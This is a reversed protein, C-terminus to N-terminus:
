ISTRALEDLGDEGTGVRHVSFGELELNRCLGDALPEDDECVLLRIPESTSQSENVGVITVGWGGLWIYSAHNRPKCSGGRRRRSPATRCRLYRSM